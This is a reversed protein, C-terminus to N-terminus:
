DQDGPYKRLEKGKTRPRTRKLYFESAVEGPLYRVAQDLLGRLESRLVYRPNIRYLRTRGALRSKLIGARELKGMHYLVTQQKMSFHNAIETAYSENFRNIYLLIRSVTKGLLGYIFGLDYKEEM